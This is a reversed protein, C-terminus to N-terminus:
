HRDRPLRQLIDLVTRAPIDSVGAFIQAKFSLNRPAPVPGGLLREGLRDLFQSPSGVSRKGAIYDYRRLFAPTPDLIARDTDPSRPRALDWRMHPRLRQELARSLAPEREILRRAGASAFMIGMQVFAIRMPRM